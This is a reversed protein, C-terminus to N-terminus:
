ATGKDWVIESNGSESQVYFTNRNITTVNENEDIPMGDAYDGIKYFYRIKGTLVKLLIYARADDSVEILTPVGDPIIQRKTTANASPQNSRAYPFSALRAM